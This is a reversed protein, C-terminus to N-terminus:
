MLKDCNLVLHVNLMNDVNLTKICKEGLLDKLFSVNVPKITYIIQINNKKIKEVFFEQFDPFYKNDTLPYGVGNEIFWRIPSFVKENLLVSFFSYNTIIMKTRKDKEIYSKIKIISEIEKKPNNKYEPSIWNLGSFKKDIKNAKSSLDFNVNSLEHFKRDENYRFHYKATTFLCLAIMIIVLFNHNKKNQILSVHSFGILIPILFFIFTQNRTLIQHLILSLTLCLLIIFYMFDKEKIYNYNDYIKKINIYFLVAIALYIYKFHLIVNNFDLNLGEYRDEGLTQSYLIYQNIFSSFSLDQFAFFILLFLFLLISSLGSYKIWYFKKNMLTYAVLIFFTCIIIYSSPVQKSLFAFTFFIPLIIWYIKKENKIALILSYIGLLSFFASHHDVFPTGSSPYALISFLISYIFCYYIHLKFNKLVLFTSITIVSNLISAHLVYSQWNAGFVYFFFAQIYDLLPGSVIWYDRFPYEGLLIRFGSDFHSFSDLPFLGKNGYYQNILLSFFILFFILIKEKHVSININNKM